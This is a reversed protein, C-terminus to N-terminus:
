GDLLAVTIGKHSSEVRRGRCQRHVGLAIGSHNRYVGERVVVSYNVVDDRRRRRRM